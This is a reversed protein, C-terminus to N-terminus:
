QGEDIGMMINYHGINETHIFIEKFVKQYNEITAFPLEVYFDEPLTHSGENIWSLLSRCIEREEPTDFKNLLYEDRRNGLIGFFNELIRRMANQLTIGSNNEWERLERWLLEYSSQIPNREGYFHLKSIGNNKRLIWYHHKEGKRNSGEYSVEKHFYINHTLIIIQNIKGKNSKVGKIIEKILSSVVFLVNSDLSSIPDDIVLIREQNVSDQTEGGKARQLFYLFTLFTVEGESLNNEVKEGNDREIQYFGEEGAAVIKFNSFGYFALLKNIEIIPQKIGTINKSKEKIEHDLKLVKNEQASIQQKLGNVGRSLSEFKSIYNDIESKFENIVFDWVADILKTKEAKYDQVLQNHSQNKGNAEIVLKRINELQETTSTLTLIRSPENVKHLTVELNAVQQGGFTKIYSSYKDINLNTKSDLKQVEEIKNLFNLLNETLGYYEERLRKIKKLDSVYEADFFIELQEKFQQDITEQQCFPCTDNDIYNRGLNVWDSINLKKILKAITVDASGVVVKSWISDEEIMKIRDFSFSQILPIEVPTDGFITLSKEELETLSNVPSKNCNYRELLKSKFSEKSGISGSFANKFKVEYKKFVMQWANNKFDDELEKIKIMENDLADKRGRLTEKLAKLELTQSEIIDIEEKTAQGLTFVGKIRGQGFNRERFDKNYVLVEITVDSKWQHSCHQYKSHSNDTLYNSITTKGCGNAGYIFNVKRLKDLTIGDACYSAVNRISIAQIM